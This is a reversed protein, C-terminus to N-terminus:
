NKKIKLTISDMDYNIADKVQNTFSKLTESDKVLRNYEDIHITIHKKDIIKNHNFATM